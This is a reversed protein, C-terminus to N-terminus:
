PSIKRIEAVALHPLARHVAPSQDAFFTQAIQLADGHSVLLINEGSYNRELDAILGAIRQAVEEASEVNAETHRPDLVDKEWVNAYHVNSKGEWDGFWRERLRDDFIIKSKVGLVKKAIKATARCRSFPSSYIVTREDLEGREKAQQVSRRVQDKGNRTLTNRWKKGDRLSSLIVGRINPRSEGHRLAFYNNKLLIEM